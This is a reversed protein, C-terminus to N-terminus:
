NQKSNRKKEFRRYGSRSRCQFIRSSAQCLSFYEYIVEQMTSCNFINYLLNDEFEVYVTHSTEGDSDYDTDIHIIEAQTQVATEKFKNNSSIFFAGGVILGAGVLAFIFFVLKEKFSKM